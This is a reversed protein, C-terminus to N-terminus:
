KKISQLMMKDRSLQPLYQFKELYKIIAAVDTTHLSEKNMKGLAIYGDKGKALYDNTILRYTKTPVIPEEVGNKIIKVNEIPDGKKLKLNVNFTLNFGCPVSGSRSQPENLVFRAVQNLLTVLEEGTIDVTLLENNFPLIKALTDLSLEGKNIDMRVGGANALYFDGGFENLYIKGFVQCTESGNLAVTNKVACLTNPLRTSCLDEKAYGIVATYKKKIESLYKDLAKDMNANAKAEVLVQENAVLENLASKANNNTDARGDKFKASDMWVPMIPSGSCSLVKGNEDFSVNLDGILKAYEYAQVVCIKDGNANKLTMPYLCEAKLGTKKFNGCLSHSDGGIIVDVDKLSAANIRDLAVGEHSVLIVVDAGLKASEENITSVADKIVVDADPSSSSYIKKPDTIGLIGIKRGNIVKTASVNIFPTIPNYDAVDVNSIVLKTKPSFDSVFKAYTAMGQGGHDFEHNGLTYFDAGFEKLVVADSEGKFLDYNSANGTIQDGASFVLLNPNVVRHQSIIEALASVGGVKATVKGSKTTFTLDSPLLYSHMDNVHMLELDFKESAFAVNTALVSVVVSIVLFKFNM